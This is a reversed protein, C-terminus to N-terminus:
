KAAASASPLQVEIDMTRLDEGLAVMDGRAARKVEALEEGSFDDLSPPTEQGRSSGARGRRLMRRFLLVVGGILILPFLLVGLGPGGSGGRSRSSGRDGAEVRDVFDGLVAAVGEDGHADFADSSLRTAAVGDTSGARFQGGVVGAYTARAGQQQALERLLGVTTGGGEGRADKPLVAVYVSENGRGIREELAQEDKRSLVDRESSDVYVPDDAWARVVDEVYGDAAAAGSPSALLTTAALVAVAVVRGRTRAEM